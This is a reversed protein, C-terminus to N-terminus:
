FATRSFELKGKIQVLEEALHKIELKLPVTETVGKISLEVLIKLESEDDYVNYNIWEELVIGFRNLVMKQYEIDEPFEELLRKVRREIGFFLDKTKKNKGAIAHARAIIFLIIPYAKAKSQAGPPIPESLFNNDVNKSEQYHRVVYIWM